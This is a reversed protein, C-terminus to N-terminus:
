FLGHLVAIGVPNEWWQSFDSRGCSRWSHVCVVILSGACFQHKATRAPSRAKPVNHALAVSTKIM